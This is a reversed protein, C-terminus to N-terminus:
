KYITRENWLVDYRKTNISNYLNSRETNYEPYETSMIFRNKYIIYGGDQHHILDINPKLKNKLIIRGLMIPGTPELPNRGYFKKNM